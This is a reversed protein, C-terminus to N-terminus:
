GGMAKQWARSAAENLAAVFSPPLGKDRSPVVQRRRGEKLTNEIAAGGKVRVTVSTGRADATVASAANPMARTGDKKPAWAEGYPDTGAAASQKVVRELLPAAEAATLRRADKGIIRLQRIMKAMSPEGEAM